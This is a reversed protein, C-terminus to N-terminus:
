CKRGRETFMGSPATTVTRGLYGRVLNERESQTM